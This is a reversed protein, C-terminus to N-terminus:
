PGDPSLHRKGLSGYNNDITGNLRNNQSKNTGLNFLPYWRIARVGIASAYDTLKVENSFFPTGLAWAAFDTRRASLYAFRICQLRPVSTKGHRYSANCKGGHGARAGRGPGPRARGDDRGLGAGAAGSESGPVNVRLYGRSGPFRLHLVKATAM